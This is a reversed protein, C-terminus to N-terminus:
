KFQESRFFENVIMLVPLATGILRTYQDIIISGSKIDDQSKPLSDAIDYFENIKEICSKPLKLESKKISEVIHPIIEISRRSSETLLDLYEKSVSTDSQKLSIKMTGYILSLVEESEKYLDM